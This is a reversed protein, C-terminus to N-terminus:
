FNSVDIFLLSQIRFQKKVIYLWPFLLFERWMKSDHCWSTPNLYLFYQVYVCSEWWDMVYFLYLTLKEMTKVPIYCFIHLLLCLFIYVLIYVINYAINFLYLFAIVPVSATMCGWVGGHVYFAYKLQWTYNKINPLSLNTSLYFCMIIWWYVCVLLHLCVCYTLM